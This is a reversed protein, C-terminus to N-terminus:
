RPKTEDTLHRQLAAILVPIHNRSIVVVADESVHDAEQRIVINGKPNEYVAVARQAPVVLDDEVDNWNFEDSM